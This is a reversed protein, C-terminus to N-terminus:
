RVGMGGTRSTVIINIQRRRITNDLNAAETGLILFIWGTGSCRTRFADKLRPVLIGGDWVILLKGRIIQPSRIAGPFLRFYFNWWTVGAM